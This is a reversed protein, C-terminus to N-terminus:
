LAAGAAAACGAAAAAATAARAALAVRDCRAAVTLAVFYGGVARAPDRQTRFAAAHRRAADALRSSAARARRAARVLVAVVRVVQLAATLLSCALRSGATAEQIAIRDATAIPMHVAIGAPRLHVTSIRRRASATRLRAAAELAASRKAAHTLL